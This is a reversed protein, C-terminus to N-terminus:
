GGAVCDWLSVSQVPMMVALKGLQYKFRLCCFRFVNFRTLVEPQGAASGVNHMGVLALQVSKQGNPIWQAPNSRDYTPVTAQMTIYTNLNPLGAAEVWSSKVEIALANAEPFTKDHASAFTTIKGLDAVTTPFQTPKPLIGGNKTGTLFYAYVDNVITAYYILSGNQALVLGDDAQGEEIDIM